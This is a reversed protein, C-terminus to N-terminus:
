SAAREKYPVGGQQPKPTITWEERPEWGLADLLAERMQRDARAAAVCLMLAVGLSTAAVAGATLLVVTTV